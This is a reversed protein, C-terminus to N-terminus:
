TWKMCQMIEIWHSQTLCNLENSQLAPPTRMGYEFSQLRKKMRPSGEPRAEKTNTNSTVRLYIM